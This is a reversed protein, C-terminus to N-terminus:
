SLGNPFSCPMQTNEPLPYVKASKVPYSIIQATHLGQPALENALVPQMKEHLLTNNHVVENDADEQAMLKQYAEPMKQKNYQYVQYMIFSAQLIMLAVGVGPNLVFGLGLTLGMVLGITVINYTMTLMMNKKITSIASSGIAFVALIPLLSSKEITVGAEEQIKDKSASSKVLISLDSSIFPITDNEADGIMAVKRGQQQLKEIFTSKPIKHPQLPDAIPICNAHVYRAPVNLYEAYRSATALDTGTCIHVQKGSHRLEQIVYRANKRIPDNVTFYGIIKKNEAIFIVHESLSNKIIAAYEQTDINADRMMTQNGITIQNGNLVCQEGPQHSVPTTYELVDTPLLYQTSFKKLYRKIAFSIPHSSENQLKLVCALIKKYDCNPATLKFANVRYKGQTLTGNLDFVVTDIEGASQLAKGSKFQVKERIGKAIGVTVAIPIISGLTCPCAAVLLTAVCAVAMVPSILAGVVLGMGAATALLAPIFYKLIKRASTELPAKEMKAEQIKNDLAVLFSNDENATVEIEVNKSYKAVEMGALLNEGQQIVEPFNNGSKITTLVVASDTINKGNLPIVGGPPVLIVAGV